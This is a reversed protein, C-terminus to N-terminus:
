RSSCPGVVELDYVTGVQAEAASSCAGGSAPQVVVPYDDDQDEALKAMEEQVSREIGSLYNQM